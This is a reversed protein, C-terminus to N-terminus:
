LANWYSRDVIRVRDVFCVLVAYDFQDFLHQRQVLLELGGLGGVFLIGELALDFSSVAADVFEDVREIFERIFFYFNNFAGTRLSLHATM